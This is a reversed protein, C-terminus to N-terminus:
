WTYFVGRHQFKWGGLWCNPRASTRKAGAVRALWIQASTLPVGAFLHRCVSKAWHRGAPRPWLAEPNTHNQGVFDPELGAGKGRFSHHNRQFIISYRSAQLTLTIKIHNFSQLRQQKCQNIANHWYNWCVTQAYYNLLQSKTLCCRDAGSDDRVRRAAM